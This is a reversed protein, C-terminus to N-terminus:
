SLGRWLHFTAYARWPRWAEALDRIRGLSLGRRPFAREMAKRVGLDAAPFADERGFARMLVYCATWPGIGPLATLAREAEDLPLAGLHALPIAGEAVAVACGHLARAKAGTLGLGRLRASGCAAVDEASPFLRLAAGNWAPAPRGALDVLRAALTRAAALSVQQGLVARVLGEFPDGFQPIRLSRSPRGLRSLVPDRAAMRCFPRLDRELDFLRVGLARLGTSRITPHASLSVAKPGRGPGSFRSEIVLDEGAVRLSRVYGTTSVVEV